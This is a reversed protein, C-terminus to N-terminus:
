SLTSLDACEWHASALTKAFILAPIV